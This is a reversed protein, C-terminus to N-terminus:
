MWRDDNVSHRTGTFVFGDPAYTGHAHPKTIGEGRVQTKDSRTIEVAGYVVPPLAASMYMYIRVLLDQSKSLPGTWLLVNQPILEYGLRTELSNQFSFCRLFFLLVFSSLMLCVPPHLFHCLLLPLKRITLACYQVHCAVPILLSM